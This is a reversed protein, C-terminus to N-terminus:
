KRPAYKKREKKLRELLKDAVQMNKRVSNELRVPPNVSEMISQAQLSKFEVKEIIKMASDAGGPYQGMNRNLTKVYENFMNVAENMVNVGKNHLDVQENALHVNYNQHLFNYYKEVTEPGTGVRQIREMAEKLQAQEPLEAHRKLANKYDDFMRVNRKFRGRFLNKHTIVKNSFQFLPDYPMHERITSRPEMMFYATSFRHHYQSGERYGGGWTPDFLMWEGDVLLANWSHSTSIVEGNQRTYGAIVYSPIGANRSLAHFLESYHQCIGIGDTLADQLIDERSANITIRKSKEFNYRIANATYYYFAYARELDTTLGASLYESLKSADNSVAEPVEKCRKKITRKKGATLQASVQASFLIVLFLILATLRIRNM